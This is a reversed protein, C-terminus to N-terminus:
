PVWFVIIRVSWGSNVMSEPVLSQGHYGDNSTVIGCATGASTDSALQLWAGPTSSHTVYCSAGPFQGGTNVAATTMGTSTIAGDFVRYEMSEGAPGQPGQPGVAGQPGPPGEPGMPGECAGLTALVVAAVLVKPIIKM